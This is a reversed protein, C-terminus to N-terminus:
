NCQLELTGELCNCPPAAVGVGEAAQDQAEFRTSERRGLPSLWHAPVGASPSRTAHSNNAGVLQVIRGSLREPHVPARGHGRLSGTRGFQPGAGDGDLGGGLRSRMVVPIQLTHDVYDAAKGAHTPAVAQFEDRLGRRPIEDVDRGVDRMLLDVRAFISLKVAHQCSAPLLAENDIEVDRGYLNRFEHAPYVIQVFSPGAGGADRAATRRGPGNRAGM